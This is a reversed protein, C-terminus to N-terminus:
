ELSEEHKGGWHLLDAVRETKLKELLHAQLTKTDLHRLLKGGEALSITGTEESVVIALSDTEETIGIAARHRTGLEKNIDPSTSMPLYCGAAAIRQNRVIIAGDHLPTNPVFTSTILETTVIAELPIGTETYETLGTEREIVILAGTRSKSLIGVAQSIAQAVSEVDHPDPAIHFRRGFFRARGLHELARRLEPWFLVPIVILGATVTRTLLWNLTWLGLWDSLVMAVLLLVLGKILQVARTDRILVILRYFVYYVIIIDLFDLLRLQALVQSVTRWM